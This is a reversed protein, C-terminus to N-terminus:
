RGNATGCGVLFGSRFCEIRARHRDCVYKQITIFPKRHTEKDNTYENATPTLPDEKPIDQVWRQFSAAVAVGFSAHLRLESQYTHSGHTALDVVLHLMLIRQLLVGTPACPVVVTTLHTVAWLLHMGLQHTTRPDLEYANQMLTNNVSNMAPTSGHFLLLIAQDNEPRQLPHINRQFITQWQLSPPPIPTPHPPSYFDNRTREYM